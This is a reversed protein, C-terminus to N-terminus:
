QKLNNEPHTPTDNFSDNELQTNIITLDEEHMQWEMEEEIKRFRYGENFDEMLEPHNILYNKIAGM